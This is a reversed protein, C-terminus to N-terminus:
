LQASSFSLIRCDDTAFVWVTVADPPQGAGPGELFVALYAPTGQFRARILSQVVGSQDPASKAVCALAKDTQAQSGSETAPAAATALPAGGSSDSQYSSTLTAMSTNDYNVHQIEILSGAVATAERAGGAPAGAKGNAADAGSRQSQGIHPLVLTFVLLAAAVAAVAGGIRYWRPTGTSAASRRVGGAEELARSAIGLPAPEEELSRLSSLAVAALETERRCRACAALHADVAAREKTSLSDDTYGALLDEPHTM